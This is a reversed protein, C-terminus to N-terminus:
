IDLGGNADPNIAMVTDIVESMSLIKGSDIKGKIFSAYKESIAM